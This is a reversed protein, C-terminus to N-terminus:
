RTWVKKSNKLLFTRDLINDLTSNLFIKFDEGVNKLCHSRQLGLEKRKQRLLHPNIVFITELNSKWQTLYPKPWIEKEMMKSTILSFSINMSSSLKVLITESYIQNQIQLGLFTMIKKNQDIWTSNMTPILQLQMMTRQLSVILTLNSNSM